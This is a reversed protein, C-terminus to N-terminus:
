RSHLYTQYRRDGRRPQPMNTVMIRSTLDRAVTTMREGAETCQVALAYTGAWEAAPSAKRVVVRGRPRMSHVLASGVGVQFGEDM